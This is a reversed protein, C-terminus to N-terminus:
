LNNKSDEIFTQLEDIAFLYKQRLAQFKQNKIVSPFLEEYMANYFTEIEIKLEIKNVEKKTLFINNNM